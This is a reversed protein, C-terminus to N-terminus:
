RVSVHSPRGFAMLGFAAAISAIGFLVILPLGSATKPL